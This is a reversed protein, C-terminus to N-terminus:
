YQKTIWRGQQLDERHQQGNDKYSENEKRRNEELQEKAYKLATKRDTCGDYICIALREEFLEKERETLM